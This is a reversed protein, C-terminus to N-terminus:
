LRLDKTHLEKALVSQPLGLAECVVGLGKGYCAPFSGERKPWDIEVPSSFM